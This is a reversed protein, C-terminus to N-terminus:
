QKQAIVHQINLAVPKKGETKESTKRQSREEKKKQKRQEVEFRM